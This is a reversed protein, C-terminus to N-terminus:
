RAGRAALREARIAPDTARRPPHYPSPGFRRAIRRNIRRQEVVMTALYALLGWVVLGVVAISVALPRFNDVAAFFASM